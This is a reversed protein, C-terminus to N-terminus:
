AGAAALWARTTTDAPLFTEIALESAAVDLPTEEGVRGRTPRPETLPPLKRRGRASTAM